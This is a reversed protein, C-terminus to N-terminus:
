KWVCVCVFNLVQLNEQSPHTFCDYRMGIEIRMGENSIVGGVINEVM